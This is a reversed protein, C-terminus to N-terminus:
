DQTIEIDWEGDDMAEVQLRYYGETKINNSVTEQSTSLTNIIVDVTKGESNILYAALFGGSGIYTYITFGSNLYFKDTLQNGIGSFSLPDIKSIEQPIVEKQVVDDEINVLKKQKQIDDLENHIINLDKQISEIAKINDNQPIQTTPKEFINGIMGLGILVFLSIAWWRKYWEKEVKEESM